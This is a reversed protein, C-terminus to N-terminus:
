VFTENQKFLLKNKNIGTHKQTHAKHLLLFGAKPSNTKRREDITGRRDDRTFFLFHINKKFYITGRYYYSTSLTTFHYIEIKWKEVSEM